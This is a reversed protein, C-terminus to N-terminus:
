SVVEAPALLALLLMIRLLRLAGRARPLDEVQTPVVQPSM